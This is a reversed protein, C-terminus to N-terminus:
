ERVKEEEERREGRQAARRRAGGRRWECAARVLLSCALSSDEGRVNRCGGIYFRMQTPLQVEGDSAGGELELGARRRWRMLRRHTAAAESCM